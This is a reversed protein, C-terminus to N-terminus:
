NRLDPRLGKLIGHRLMGDATVNTYAVEAQLHPLLWIERPQTASARALRATPLSPYVAQMFCIIANVKAVDRALRLESLIRLWERMQDACVDGKADIM